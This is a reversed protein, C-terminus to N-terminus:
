RKVEWLMTTPTEFIDRYRGVEKLPLGSLEPLKDLRSIVLIPQGSAVSPSQILQRLSDPSNFVKIHQSPPLWNFNLAANYDKYAVLIGQKSPIKSLQTIPNRQYVAPYAVGLFYLNFLIYGVSLWLLQIAFGKNRQMLAYLIFAPLLLLGLAWMQTGTLGESQQLAIFGGVPLALGIFLLIYWTFAPWDRKQQVAEGVIFGLLIAAFPYCPMPYNPLKTTSISFFVIYVLSVIAGFWVLEPLQPRWLRKITQVLNTSFPLLGVLVILLTIFFPGGHGEMETSFRNLNHELFFGRTFAGNTAKHVALYWPSAIALFVIAALLLRVDTFVWWKKKAIVLLLLSLGPLGLAVPGKALVALALSAAAMLLWRMSKDALYAYGSFLGLATFFILYPDPVALRFEFLFHTSLGLVLAAFFATVANLYRKVFYFVVWVTAIGAVASFLRAQWEGVGFFTYSVGMMWYHLPPKDTRLEGNFSPVLWQGNAWMEAACRANKAEDLIYVPAAGLRFFLLGAVVALLWWIFRNFFANTYM